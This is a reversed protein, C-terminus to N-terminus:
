EPWRDRVAAILSGYVSRPGHCTIIRKGESMGSQHFAVGFVLRSSLSLQGDDGRTCYARWLAGGSMGEYSAPSGLDSHYSVEFDLLDFGDSDREGVVNGAGYLSRFGKVRCFGRESPLDTTWEAVTGSIGDFYMPGPQDGALVSTRRKELNFFVGRAELVAADQRPLRLFGLDPGQPGFVEGTIELKEAHKMNITQRQAFWSATKSRVLGVQGRDPLKRLVHAATLIGHVPGVTVLTGSGKPEADEIGDQVSLLAFGIIFNAVEASM